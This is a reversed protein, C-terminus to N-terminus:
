ERDPDGAWRWADGFSARPRCGRVLDALWVPPYTLLVLMYRVAAHRLIPYRVVLGARHANM